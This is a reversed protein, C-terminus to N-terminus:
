SVTIRIEGRAGAGARGVNVGGAGVSYPVAGTFFGFPFVREFKGGSGGGGGNWATSGSSDFKGAGGAGPATSVRAAVNRDPQVRGLAGIGGGGPADAGDGAYSWVLGPKGQLGPLNVDGGTATGGAGGAATAAATGAAVLGSKGGTASCPGFTTTGGTTSAPPSGSDTGGGTGGGAWGEVTLENFEAPLPWNGSGSTLTVTYPTIAKRFPPLPALGPLM